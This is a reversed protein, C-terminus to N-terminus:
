SGFQASLRLPEGADLQVDRLSIEGLAFSMLPLTRGELQALQPRIIAGAINGIMGDGRFQLNSLRANFHEDIDLDGGLMMTTTAIFMKATVEASVSIARPGRSSVQIKTSKVDVGRERAAEAALSHLLREFDVRAMEIAVHGHAAHRIVVLLEGNAAPAFEFACQEARLSVHVPASELEAPAAVLEFQAATFGGARTKEAFAFRQSRSIQSGTLDLRLSDLAPWAGRATVDRAALGRAALGDKLAAALADPSAPIESGALPLM